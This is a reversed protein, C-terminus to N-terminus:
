EETDIYDEDTIVYPTINWIEELGECYQTINNNECYHYFQVIIQKTNSDIQKEILTNFFANLSKCQEPPIIQGKEEYYKMLMTAYSHVSYGFARDYNPSNIINEMERCGQEFNEDASPRGNKLDDLGIELRNKALAHAVQYSNPRITKAYLFHNNADEFRGILQFALGYQVWFYSVSACHKELAMFLDEMQDFSLLSHNRIRKVRLAKQFLEYAESADGESFLGMTYRVLQYIANKLMDDPRPRLVASILRSRLLKVHSSKAEIFDPYCALFDETRFKSAKHSVLKPLVHLPIDSIGLKGLGALVYLYDDYFNNQHTKIWDAYYERFYKGESSYYLVDIIDNAKKMEDWIRHMNNKNTPHTMPSCYKLYNNLRKKVCLTYFIKAAFDATIKESIEFDYWEIQEPLNLFNHKKGTHNQVTDTTIIVLNAIDDLHQKAFAVIHDYQYAANEILLAVQSQLPLTSLYQSLSEYVEFGMRPVEIAIYGSNRLDILCRKAVTTKGNYPRGFLTIITVPAHREVIKKMLQKQNPYAIDWEAFFDNYQTPQGYYIQSTYNEQASIEDIFIAGREKLLNRNNEIRVVEQSVFTLFRETDMEIWHFNDTNEIKNRLVIDNIHPVVFFYHCDCNKYGSTEYLNLVFSIDSEQFESGLIVMDRSLFVHAFEKLLCNNDATFRSYEEDDFVFGDKPSYIDGHLKILTQTDLERRGNQTYNWVCLPTNTASFINEVLDDINLTFITDWTYDKIKFQYQKGSPRCGSFLKSLYTDRIDQRKESRLISCIKRLDNQYESVREIYVADETPPCDVYFHNFLKNALERGLPLDNGGLNRAGYSFGAGLLLAASRQSLREKLLDLDQGLM